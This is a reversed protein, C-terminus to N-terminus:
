ASVVLVHAAEATRLCLDSEGIRYMTPSGLPARRLCTVEVGARLGLDRLRPAAAVGPAVGVIRATQGRRLASLPIGTPTGPTERDPVVATRANAVPVGM